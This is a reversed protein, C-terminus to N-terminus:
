IFKLTTKLFFKKVIILNNKKRLNNLTKQYIISQERLSISLQKNINKKKISKRKKSVILIEPLPCLKLYNQIIKLKNKKKYAYINIRQVFGESDLLIDFKKNHKNFLYKGACEQVFWNKFINKARLDFNSEKISKNVFRVFLLNKKQFKKYVKNCIENYIKYVAGHNLHLNPSVIKTKINKNFFFSIKKFLNLKIFKYYSLVLKEKISLNLEQNSFVLIAKKYDYIKLNKRKLYQEIIKKKYTKGAGSPGFCEITKIM